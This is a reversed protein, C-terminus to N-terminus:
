LIRGTVQAIASPKVSKASAFYRTVRLSRGELPREKLLALAATIENQDPAVLGNGTRTAQGYFGIQGM